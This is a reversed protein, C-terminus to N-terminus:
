APLDIHIIIQVSKSLLDQRSLRSVQHRPWAFVLGERVCLLRDDRLAPEDRLRRVGVDCIPPHRPRGEVIRREFGLLDGEQEVRSLFPGGSYKM